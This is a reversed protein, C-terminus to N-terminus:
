ELPPDEDTSLASYSVLDRRTGDARREAGRLTGEHVFGVHEMVQQAAENETDTLGQIRELRLEDFAWRVTLRIARAALGGGRRAPSLWFGLEASREDPDVHFLITSGIFAGTAADLVALTVADDAAVRDPVRAIYERVATEEAALQDGYAHHAVARDRLGDLFAPADDGSLLRLEIAGDRLPVEPPRLHVGSM